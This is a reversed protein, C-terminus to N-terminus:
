GWWCRNQDARTGNSRDCLPHNVVSRAGTYVHEVSIPHLALTQYAGQDATCMRLAESIDDHLIGHRAARCTCVVCM